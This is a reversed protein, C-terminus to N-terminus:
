CFVLLSRDRQLPANVVRAIDVCHGMKIAAFHAPDHYPPLPEIHCCVPRDGAAGGDNGDRKGSAIHRMDNEEEVEGNDPYQQPDFRTTIPKVVGKARADSHEFRMKKDGHHHFIALHQLAFPFLENAFIQDQGAELDALEFGYSAPQFTIVHENEDKDQHSPYHFYKQVRVRRNVINDRKILRQADSVYRGPQHRQNKGACKDSHNRERNVDALFRGSFDGLETRM